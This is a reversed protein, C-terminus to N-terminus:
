SSETFKLLAKALWRAELTDFDDLIGDLNYRTTNLAGYQRAQLRDEKTTMVARRSTKTDNM